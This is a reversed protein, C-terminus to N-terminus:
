ENNGKNNNEFKLKREIMEDAIEYCYKVYYWNSTFYEDQKLNHINQLAAMAFEDRLTKIM